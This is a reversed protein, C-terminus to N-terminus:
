PLPGFLRHYEENEEELKEVRGELVAIRDQLQALILSSATIMQASAEPGDSRKHWFTAIATALVSVAGVIITLEGADVM